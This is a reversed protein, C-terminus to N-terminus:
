VYMALRAGGDCPESLLGGGPLCVGDDSQLVPKHVLGDGREEVWQWALILMVPNWVCGMALCTCAM